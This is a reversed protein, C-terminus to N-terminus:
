QKLYIEMEYINEIKICNEEVYEKIVEPEQWFDEESKIIITNKWLKIEELTKEVGKYGLNGKFLLDFKKNNRNMPAMYKSADWSIVMVNYGENEKQKIYEIVNSIRELEDNSFGHNAYIELGIPTSKGKLVDIYNFFLMLCFILGLIPYSIKLIKPNEKILSFGLMFLTCIDISLLGLSFWNYIDDRKITESTEKFSILYISMMLLLILVSELIKLIDYKENEIFINFLKIIILWSLFTAIYAHYSNLIPVIYFVTSLTYLTIVFLEKDKKNLKFIMLGIIPICMMLVFYANAPMVSSNNSGFELMGGFCLNIYDYLIGYSAMLIIIPITIIFFGLAKELIEKIPNKKEIGIGYILSILGTAMIAMGGVTQKSFFALALFVGILINTSKKNKNIQNIELLMACMIFFLSFTNYSAQTLIRAFVFLVILISWNIIENNYKNIKKGIKYFLVAVGGYCIGSFLDYVVFSSGFLKFIFGGIIYFIPGVLVNIESYILDGNAIKQMIHLLWIRDYEFEQNNLNILIVLVSFFVFILVSEILSKNKKM